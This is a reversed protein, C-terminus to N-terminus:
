KICGPIEEIADVVAVEAAIGLMTLIGVAGAGVMDTMGAEECDETIVPWFPPM